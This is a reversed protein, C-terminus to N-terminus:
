DTVVVASLYLSLSFSFWLLSQPKSVVFLGGLIMDANLSETEFRPDIM